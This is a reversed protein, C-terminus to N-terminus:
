WDLEINWNIEVNNEEPSIFSETWEPKSPINPSPATLQIDEFYQVDDGVTKNGNEDYLEHSVFEDKSEDHYSVIKRIGILNYWEDDTLRKDSLFEYYNFVAGKALYTKGKTNCVVYIECPLGNGIELYHGKNVSADPAVTSVDAILASTYKDDDTIGADRLMNNLSQVIYDIRGGYYFLRENEDDSIEQNTLEKVSVNMMTEAMEIISDLIDSSNEDLMDRVRLNEKSNEALWKLKAYVEVNPEVYCYPMNPLGGGGMEAGSQKKYLISDHKLEAYSGLATNINKDTWKQSRMFKPMGDTDEYSVASSKISWLWGNYLDAKWEEDTVTKEKERMIKLNKEYETWLEKPKYYIDLLQEARKNDFASLVDLGSPIPRLWPVILKQMTEADFSYRQGMFRFQKGSPTSVDTYEPQIKPEPLLLAEESLKDYYSDDKYINIDPYEGYVNTILDRYEFIGLDDSLGTYLSTISYINEYNKYIEESSFTMSTIIMSKIMNDIDLEVKPSSDKFVPFGCQGYWMMTKFYNILKENGAYHGRVVFQSYDLYKGLIPSLKFDEAEEILLIEADAMASLESSINLSEIDVDMLKSATLYYATIFKLEEKLGEYKSNNYYEVSKELMLKSLDNLKDYLSSLEVYKLSNDYFIHYLHLASDVTIFSPFERYKNDEYIQHMQLVSNNPKLIVFGDEYIAKKQKETFGTYQEANFLNSLNEDIDYLKVNPTFEPLKYPINVNYMFIDSNWLESSLKEGSESEEELEKEIDPSDVEKEGSNTCSTVLVQCLMM